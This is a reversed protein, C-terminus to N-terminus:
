DRAIEHEAKLISLQQWESLVTFAFANGILRRRVTIRSGRVLMKQSHDITGYSGDAFRQYKGRPWGDAGFLGPIREIRRTRPPIVFPTFVNSFELRRERIIDANAMREACGTARACEMQRERRESDTGSILHDHWIDGPYCCGVSNNVDAGRRYERVYLDSAPTHVRNGEFRFDRRSGFGHNRGMKVSMRGPHIPDHLDGALM